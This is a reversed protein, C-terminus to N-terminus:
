CRPSPSCASRPSFPSASRCASIFCRGDARALGAALLARVARLPADGPRARSIPSIFLCGPRRSSCRSSRRVSGHRAGAHRFSRAGACLRVRCQDGAHRDDCLPHHGGPRDRQGAVAAGRLTLAPLLGFQAIMVYDAALAAVQPKQGLALLIPEANFFLRCRGAALLRDGGVPGHADLPAGLHRRRPRVGAGGDARRRDFLRLRLHLHHLLVAGGAGDGGPVAAGLRGIIVVDTTHIGLQALQAGILPIGLALTARIHSAWSSAAKGTGAFAFRSSM